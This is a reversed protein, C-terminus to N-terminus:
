SKRRRKNTTVDNRNMKRKKRNIEKPKASNGLIAETTYCDIVDVMKQSMESSQSGFELISKLDGAPNSSNACLDSAFSGMIENKVGMVKTISKIYEAITDANFRYMEFLQMKSTDLAIEHCISTILGKLKCKEAIELKKHLNFMRACTDTDKREESISKCDAILKNQLKIILANDGIDQAFTILDELNSLRVKIPEGAKFKSYTQAAESM